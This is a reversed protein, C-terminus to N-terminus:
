KQRFEKVGDVNSYDKRITFTSLVVFSSGDFAYKVRTTTKRNENPEDYEDVLLESVVIGGGSAPYFRFAQYVARSPVTRQTGTLTTKLEHRGLTSRYVDYKDITLPLGATKYGSQISFWGGTASTSILGVPQSSRFSTEELYDESVRRIPEILVGGRSVGAYSAGEAGRYVCTLLPADPELATYAGTSYELGKTSLDRCIKEPSSVASASVALGVIMMLSFNM